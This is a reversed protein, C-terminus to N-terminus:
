PLLVRPDEPVLQNLNIAQSLQQLVARADESSATTLEERIATMDDRTLRKREIALRLTDRAKVVAATQLPSPAAVAPSPSAEPVASNGATKPLLPAIAQALVAPDVVCASPPALPTPPSPSAAQSKLSALENRLLELQQSQDRETQVLVVLTAAALCVGVLQLRMGAM